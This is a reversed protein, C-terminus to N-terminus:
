NANFLFSGQTSANNGQSVLSFSFYASFDVELDGTDLTKDQYKYSWATSFKANNEYKNEDHYKQLGILYENLASGSLGNVDQLRSKVDNDTFLALDITSNMSAPEFAGIVCNNYGSVIAGGEYYVAGMVTGETYKINATLSINSGPTTPRGGTYSHQEITVSEVRKLCDVTATATLENYAHVKVTLIIQESFLQNMQLVASLPNSSNKTVQVYDTVTKDNAWSSAANKWAVTYEIDSYTADSPTLTTTVALQELVNGDAPANLPAILLNVGSDADIGGVILSDGNGGQITDTYSKNAIFFTGVGLAGIAFIVALVIALTKKKGNTRSYTNNIM